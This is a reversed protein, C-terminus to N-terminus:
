RGSAALFIAIILISTLMVRSTILPMERNHKSFWRKALHACEAAGDNPYGWGLVM